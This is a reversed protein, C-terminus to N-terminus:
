WGFARVLFAAMQGRTVHLTPCYSDGGCGTTVGRAALEDIFAYFPHTPPVDAFRQLAPPPPTYGAQHLARIIFVAMQERAVTETPCYNGGGCGITIGRAAMEDIYAYFPHAPSVDAFRQSSPAPPAYGPPHLARIIFAAMQERPVAADPCYNGNGCGLTVGRAAIKNIETYFQHSTPVDNFPPAQYITFTQGGVTITASRSTTGNNAAVTFNITGNGIGSSNTTIWSANDSAGWACGTPTILSFSGNGGNAPFNQSRVPLHYVCNGGPNSVRFSAVTLRTNNLSQANDASNAAPADVGTPEGNYLVAPNSFHLVRPCGGGACNYAMVTRFANTPSKYGFSYSYAGPGIDDQRAHNLGQNHGLEHAFSYNPSVCSRVVVNFSSSAFNANNGNMLYGTGCVKGAVDGVLLTVLDAQYTNRLSHVEDMFGDGTNRLRSLDTGVEGSETYNVEATHVLRLRQIVQSNAYATNTESVGLNILSQIANTGGAEIRAASTYVVMVDIFSGDDAEPAQLFTPAPPLKVRRPEGDPPLQNRDIEQILHLNDGAYRVSYFIQPLSISGALQDQTVALHVFSGPQGGIRGVYVISNLGAEVREIVAALRLDDFLELAIEGETGNVLQASTRVLVSTDVLVARARVVGLDVANNVSQASSVPIFLREQTVANVRRLWVLLIVGIFVALCLVVYNKWSKNKMTEM